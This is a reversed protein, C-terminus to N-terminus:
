LEELDLESVEGRAAQELGRTVSNLIEWYRSDCWKCGNKTRWDPPLSRGCTPCTDLM